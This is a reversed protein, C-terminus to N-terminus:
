SQENNEDDVDVIDFVGDNDTDLQDENPIDPCNDCNDGFGDNDRDRQNRSAKFPCNDQM